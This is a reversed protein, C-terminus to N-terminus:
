GGALGPADVLYIRVLGLITTRLFGPECNSGASTISTVAAATPKPTTAAVPIPGEYESSRARIMFGGASKM